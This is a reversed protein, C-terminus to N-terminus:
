ANLTTPVLRCNSPIGFLGRGNEQLLFFFLVFWSEWGVEEGVGGSVLCGKSLSKFRRGM